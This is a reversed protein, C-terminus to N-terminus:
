IMIDSMVLIFCYGRVVVNMVLGIGINGSMLEIIIFNENFLGVKEVEVIM